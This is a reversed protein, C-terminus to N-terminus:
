GMRLERLLKGIPRARLPRELVQSAGCGKAKRVIDSTMLSSTAILRVTSLAPSASLSRLVSFGDAGPLFLDMVIMQPHVEGAQVLLDTLSGVVVGRIGTGTGTVNSFIEITAVDDDALLVTREQENKLIPRGSGSRRFQRQYQTPSSRVIRAESGVSDLMTLAQENQPLVLQDCLFRLFDMENSLIGLAEEATFYGAAVHCLLMIDISLSQSLSLLRAADDVAIQGHKWRSTRASELGVMRGLAADSLPEDAYIDDAIKRVLAFLERSTPFVAAKKEAM